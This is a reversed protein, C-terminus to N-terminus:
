GETAYAAAAAYGNPPLGGKAPAKEPIDNPALEVPFIAVLLM